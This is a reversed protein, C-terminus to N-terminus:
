IDIIFLIKLINYTHKHTHMEKDVSACVYMYM